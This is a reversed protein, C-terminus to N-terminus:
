LEKSLKNVKVELNAVETDTKEKQSTSRELQLHSTTAQDLLKDNEAFLKDASATKRALNKKAAELETKLGESSKDEKQIAKKWSSFGTKRVM